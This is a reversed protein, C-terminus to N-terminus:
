TVREAVVGIVARILLVGIETVAVVVGGGGGGGGTVVVLFMLFVVICNGGQGSYLWNVCRSGDLLVRTIM